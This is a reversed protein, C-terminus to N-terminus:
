SYRPSPGTDAEAYTVAFAAARAMFDSRQQTNVPM